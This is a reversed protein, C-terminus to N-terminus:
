GRSFLDTQAERRQDDRHKVEAVASYHAQVEDGSMEASARIVALCHEIWEIRTM